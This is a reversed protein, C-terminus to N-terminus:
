KQNRTVFLCLAAYMFARENKLGADLAEELKTQFFDTKKYNMFHVNDGKPFYMDFQIMRKKYGGRFKATFIRNKPIGFSDIVETMLNFTGLISCTVTLECSDGKQTKITISTPCRTDDVNEALVQWQSKQQAFIFCPVLAFLVIFCKKM